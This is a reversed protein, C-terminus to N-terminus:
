IWGELTWLGLGVALWRGLVLCERGTWVQPDRGMPQGYGRLRMATYVRESQEVSRVVLSGMLPIFTPIGFRGGRLLIARQMQQWDQHLVFLYRHTLLLMDALIGSFGWRRLMGLTVPLPQSELAVLALTVVSLFRAASRFLTLLSEQTLHLSGWPLLLALVAVLGLPYRWRRFLLAWPLGSRSYLGLSIGFLLSLTQWHHLTAGVLILIGLGLLTGQHMSHNM